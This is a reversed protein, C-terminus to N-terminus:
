VRVCRAAGREPRGRALEEGGVAGVAVKGEGRRLVRCLADGVGVAAVVDDGPEDAGAEPRRREVVELEERGLARERQQAGAGVDVGGGLGAPRRRERERLVERRRAARRLARRGEEDELRRLRPAALRVLVERLRRARAGDLEPRPGEAERPLGAERARLLRHVVHPHGAHEAVGDRAVVPRPPAAASCLQLFLPRSYSILRIM